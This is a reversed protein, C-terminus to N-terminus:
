MAPALEPEADEVLYRIGLNDNPSMELLRDFCARAEDEDGAERKALGLAHIARM